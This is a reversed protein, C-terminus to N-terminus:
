GPGFTTQAAIAEFLPRYDAPFFTRECTGRLFGVYGRTQVYWDIQIHTGRAAERATGPQQLEYVMVYARRGGVTTWRRELIRALSTPNDYKDAWHQAWSDITRSSEAWYASIVPAGKDRPGDFLVQGKGYYRVNSKWAEPVPFRMGAWTAMTMKLKM